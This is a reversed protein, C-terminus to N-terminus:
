KLLEEIDFILFRLLELKEKEKKYVKLLEEPIKPGEKNEKTEENTMASLKIIDNLPILLNKQISEKYNIDSKVNYKGANDMIIMSKLCVLLANITEKIELVNVERIKIETVLKLLLQKMKISIAIDMNKEHLIDDKICDIIMGKAGDPETKMLLKEYVSIRNELAIIKVANKFIVLSCFRIIENGQGGIFIAIQQMMFAFTEYFGSSKYKKLETPKYLVTFKHLLDLGFKSINPTEYLGKIILTYLEFLYEPTIIAPFVRCKPNEIFENYLMYFFISIGIQNYETTREYSQDEKHQKIENEHMKGSIIRRRNLRLITIPDPCMELITKCITSVLEQSEELLFKYGTIEKNIEKKTEIMKQLEIRDKTQLPAKEEPIKQMFAFYFALIDYGFMMSYHAAEVPNIKDPNKKRDEDYEDEFESLTINYLYDENQYNLSNKMITPISLAAFFKSIAAPMYKEFNELEEKDLKRIFRKENEQIYQEYTGYIMPDLVTFLYSFAEAKLMGGFMYLFGQLFKARKKTIGALIKSFIECIRIIKRTSRAEEIMWDCVALFLEKNSSAAFIQSVISDIIRNVKKEIPLKEFIKDNVYDITNQLIADEGIFLDKYFSLKLFGSIHSSGYEAYFKQSPVPGYQHFKSDFKQLFSAKRTASAASSLLKQCYTELFDSIKKSLESVRSAPANKPDLILKSYEELIPWFEKRTVSQVKEPPPHHHDHHEGCGCNEAHEM